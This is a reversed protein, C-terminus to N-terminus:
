VDVMNVSILEQQGLGPHHDECGKLFESKDVEGDNKAHEVFDGLYKKTLGCRKAEKWSIHNDHNQDCHSFVINTVQECKANQTDVKLKLASITSILAFASFIKM